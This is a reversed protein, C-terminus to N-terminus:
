IGLRIWNFARVFEKIVKIRLYILPSVNHYTMFHVNQKVLEKSEPMLMAVFGAAFLIRFHSSSSM